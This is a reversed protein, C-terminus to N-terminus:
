DDLFKFRKNKPSKLVRLIAAGLIGRTIQGRASKALKIVEAKKDIHGQKILYIVWDRSTYGMIKYVEKMPYRRKEDIDDIKTVKAKMKKM